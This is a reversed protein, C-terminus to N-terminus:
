RGDAPVPDKIYDSLDTDVFGPCLVCSKIGAGSRAGREDGRHLRRRRAQDGLLRRARRAGIKGTISSMNVVLADGHEAGAARLLDLRRRSLLAIVSRLNLALQLDIHKTSLEDIEGRDGLGANNVLM